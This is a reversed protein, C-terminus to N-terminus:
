LITRGIFLYCGTRGKQVVFPKGDETPEKQNTRRWRLCSVEERMRSGGNKDEEMGM